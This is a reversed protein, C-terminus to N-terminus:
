ISIVATSQVALMSTNWCMVALSIKKQKLVPITKLVGTSTQLQRKRPPAISTKLAVLVAAAMSIKQAVALMNIRAAAPVTTSKKVVVAMSTKPVPVRATSTKLVAINKKTVVATKISIKIAAVAAIINIKPAAATNTRVAGM